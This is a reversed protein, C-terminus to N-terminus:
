KNVKKVTERPLRELFVLFVLFEKQLKKPDIALESSSESITAIQPTAM